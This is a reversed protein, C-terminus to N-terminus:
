TREETKEVKGQQAALVRLVARFFDPRRSDGVSTESSCLYTTSPGPRRRHATSGTLTCFPAGVTLTVVLAALSQLGAKCSKEKQPKIPAIGHHTTCPAKWSLCQALAGDESRIQITLPHLRPTGSRGSKCPRARRYGGYGDLSARICMGPRVMYGDQLRLAAGGPRWAKVEASQIEMQWRLMSRGLAQDWSRRVVWSVGM